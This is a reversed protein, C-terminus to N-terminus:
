SQGGNGLAKKAEIIQAEIGALRGLESVPLDAGGDKHLWKIWAVQRLAEDLHEQASARGNVANCIGNALAEPKDESAEVVKGLYRGGGDELNYHREMNMGGGQERYAWPTEGTVKGNGNTGKSMTAEECDEEM